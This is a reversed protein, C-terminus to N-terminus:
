LAVLFEFNEPPMRGWFIKFKKLHPLIGGSGGANVCGSNNAGRSYFMKRRWPYLQLISTIEPSKWSKESMVNKICDGTVVKSM